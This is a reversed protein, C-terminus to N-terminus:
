VKERGHVIGGNKWKTDDWSVEIQYLPREEGAKPSFVMEETERGGLLKLYVDAHRRSRTCFVLRDVGYPRAAMMIDYIVKRMYRGDGIMKPFLIRKREYDIVWTFFGKDPRWWIKEEPDLIFEGVIEEYKKVWSSLPLPSISGGTKM